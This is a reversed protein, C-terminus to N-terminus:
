VVSKRDQGEFEKVAKEYNLFNKFEGNRLKKDITEEYMHNLTQNLRKKFERKNESVLMNYSEKMKKNLEDM